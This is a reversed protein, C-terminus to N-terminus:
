RTRAELGRKTMGLFNEAARAFFNSPQSLQNFVGKAYKLVLNDLLNNLNLISFIHFIHTHLLLFHRFHMYISRKRTPQCTHKRVM